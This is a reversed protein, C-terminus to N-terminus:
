GVGLSTASRGLESAGSELKVSAGWLCAVVLLTLRCAGLLLRLRVLVGEGWGLM